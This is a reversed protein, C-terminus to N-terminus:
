QRQHGCVQNHETWVLLWDDGRMMAPLENLFPHNFPHMCPQELAEVELFLFLEHISQNLAPPHIYGHVPCSLSDVLNLSHMYTMHEHIAVM